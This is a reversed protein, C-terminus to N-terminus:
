LPIAPLRFAPHRNNLVPVSLHSHAVPILEEAAGPLFRSAFPASSAIFPAPRM